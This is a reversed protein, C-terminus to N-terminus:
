TGRRPAAARETNKWDDRPVLPPMGGVDCLRQRPSLHFLTTEAERLALDRHHALAGPVEVLPRTAYGDRRQAGAQVDAHGMDVRRFHIALGLRHDGGRDLVPALRNEEHVLHQRM